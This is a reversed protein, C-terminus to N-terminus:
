PRRATRELSIFIGDPKARRRRSSLDGGADHRRDDRDLERCPAQPRLPISPLRCRRRRRHPDLERRAPHLGSDARLAPGRGLHPPRKPPVRRFRMARRGGGLALPHAARVGARRAAGVGRGRCRRRSDEPRRRVRDLRQRGRGSARPHEGGDARRDAGPAAGRRGRDLGPLPDIQDLRHRRSRVADDLGSLLTDLEDHQTALCAVIQQM